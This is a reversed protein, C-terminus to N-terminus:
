PSRSMGTSPEPTSMREPGAECSRPPEGPTRFHEPIWSSQSKRYGGVGRFTQLPSRLNLDTALFAVFVTAAGALHSAASVFIPLNNFTGFLSDGAIIEYSTKGALIFLTAICLRRWPGRESLGHLALFTIAATALGSLGACYQMQPAFVLLAASITWPAVACLWGFGPLRRTEIIWGAIALPLVDSILHRASFHVWHCTFMRWIQGSLIASRDYLLWPACAPFLAILVASVIAILTLYPVATLPTLRAAGLSDEREGRRRPSLRLSPNRCSFISTGANSEPVGRGLGRGALRPSPVLKPWIRLPIPNVSIPSPATGPLAPNSQSSAIKSM